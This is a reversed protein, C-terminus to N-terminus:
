WANIREMEMADLPVHMTVVIVAEQMIQTACEVQANRVIADISQFCHEDLLREEFKGVQCDTPAPGFCADEQCRDRICMESGM